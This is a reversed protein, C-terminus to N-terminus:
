SCSKEVSQGDSSYDEELTKITENRLSKDYFYYIKPNITHTERNVSITFEEKKLIKDLIKGLAKLLEDPKSKDNENRRWSMRLTNSESHNIKSGSALKIIM